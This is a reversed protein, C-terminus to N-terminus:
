FKCRRKFFLLIFNLQIVNLKLKQTTGERRGTTRSEECFRYKFFWMQRSIKTQKCSEKTFRSMFWVYVLYFKQYYFSLYLYYFYSNILFYLLFLRSYLKRTTYLIICLSSKNYYKHYSVYFLFFINILSQWISLTSLM